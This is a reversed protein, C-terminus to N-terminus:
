ETIKVFEVRRNNAKGEPTTNDSLPVSEGKGETQLRNEDIGLEILVDKVANARQASLELNSADDGDSDTHGEINFNLDSHQEMMKAITNIVGMSEPKLTTKNVDFLIGRTVFRGDAVIREYLKKGGEAIRINKIARVYGDAYYSHAYISFQKPKFGKGLNPISLVRHQDVFVKLSRKNFSIAFHRWVPQVDLEKESGEFEKIVGNIEGALKAGDRQLIIPYFYDESSEPYYTKEGKPSFRIDYNQWGTPYGEESFFYADFEITFVEPLYSEKDMLPTIITNNKLNIINEDNFVANEASGSILDWRSPFEGNEEYALDDQFIIKDGPVFNYNSWPKLNEQNATEEIDDDNANEDYDLEKESNNKNKGKKGKKRKKIKKDANLISDMASETKEAAKEETKRIVTEKAVEEVRKGLKKWFQAETSQIAGLLFFFLIVTLKHIKLNKM